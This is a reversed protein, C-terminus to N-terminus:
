RTEGRSEERCDPKRSKIWGWRRMAFYATTTAHLVFLTILPWEFFRHIAVATEPTMWRSFGFM